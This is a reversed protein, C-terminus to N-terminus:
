LRPQVRRHDAATRLEYIEEKGWLTIKDSRNGQNRIHRVVEVLLEGSGCVPDCVRMGVKPETLKVILKQLSHPTFFRMSRRNWHPELNVFLSEYVDAFREPNELLPKDFHLHSLNEILSKLLQNSASMWQNADPNMLLGKLRDNSEEALSLIGTIQVGIQRAPISQSAAIIELCDWDAEKRLRFAEPLEKEERNDMANIQSLWRFFFLPLLYISYNNPLDGSIRLESVIRKLVSEIKNRESM